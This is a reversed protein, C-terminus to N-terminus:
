DADTLYNGLADVLRGTSRLYAVYQQRSQDRHLRCSWVLGMAMLSVLLPVGWAVAESLPLESAAPPAIAYASQGLSFMLSAAIVFRRLRVSRDYAREACEAIERRLAEASTESPVNKIGALMISM